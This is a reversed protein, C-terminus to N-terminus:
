FGRRGAGVRTPLTRGRLQSAYSVSAVVPVPEYVALCIADARDPSPVGRRKMAEKSEIVIRGGSTHDTFSPATLQRIEKESVELRLTGDRLVERTAWWCEARRNAFRGKDTAAEGAMVHVIDAGHRGDKGMRTLVDATGAGVGNADVKVRVRKTNFGRQAQIGEARRIHELVREANIVQDATDSGSWVEAIRVRWGDLHAVAMEDGGGGAVDVGLRQWDSEPETEDVEGAAVQAAEAWAVPIVRRSSSGPFQALVRAVYYPDDEGYEKRIDDVWRQDVLNMAIEPPCPEGTFNPSDFASIHINTWQDSKAITEFWSGESDTPPNGIALLRTNEGTMLADLNRGLQMPIGGAEDVIILLYPAHFGQVASENHHSPSFGYGLTEQDVVWSIQNLYGDLQAKAHVKHIHPWLINKVQRGTPATSIFKAEGLPHVAIWWACIRAASHTKGPGHSAVAVTRRDKVVTDMILRQKSWVFEDLVDTVFGAPDDIWLAYPTGMERAFAQFILRSDHDNHEAVIRRRDNPTLALLDAVITM